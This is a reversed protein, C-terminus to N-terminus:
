GSPPSGSPTKSVCSLARKRTNLAKRPKAPARSGSEETFTREKAAKAVGNSKAKELEEELSESRAMRFLKEIGAQTYTLSMLSPDDGLEM